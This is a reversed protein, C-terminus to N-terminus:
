KGPESRKVAGAVEALQRMVRRWGLEAPRGATRFVRALHRHQMGTLRAELAAGTTTVRLRRVRRDGPAARMLVFGRRVLTRLPENVAQKSLALARLLEGVSLDPRRAVFYLIRHHMRALRRRQLLADPAAILRKWGFYVLELARDLETRRSLDVM